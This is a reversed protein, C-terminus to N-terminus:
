QRDKVNDEYLNLASMLLDRLAVAEGYDLPGSLGGGSLERVVFCGSTPLASTEVKIQFLSDDDEVTLKRAKEEKVVIM